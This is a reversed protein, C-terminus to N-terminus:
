STRITWTDGEKALYSEFNGQDQEPAQIALLSHIAMFLAGLKKTREVLCKIDDVNAPLAQYSMGQQKSPNGKHGGIRSFDQDDASAYGIFWLGHVIKNRESMLERFEKSAQDLVEKQIPDERIGTETMIADYAQILPAATMSRNDTLIRALSQTRLGDRQLAFVIGVRLWSCAQEFEVVFRGIQEFQEATQCEFLEQRSEEDM